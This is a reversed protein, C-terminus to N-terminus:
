VEVIVHTFKKYRDPYNKYIMYCTQIDWLNDSIVLVDDYQRMFKNTNTYVLEGPNLCNNTTEQAITKLLQQQWTYSEELSSLYPGYFLLILHRQKLFMIMWMTLTIYMMLFHNFGRVAVISSWNDGEDNSNTSGVPNLLLSNLDLNEENLDLNGENLNLNGENLTCQKALNQNEQLIASTSPIEVENVNATLSNKNCYSQTVASHSVIDGTSDNSLNNQTEHRFGRKDVMQIPKKLFGDDGESGMNNNTLPNLPVPANQNMGSGKNVRNLKLSFM